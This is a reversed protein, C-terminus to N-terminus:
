LDVAPALRQDEERFVFFYKKALFLSILRAEKESFNGNNGYIELFKLVQKAKELHLDNYFDLFIDYCCGTFGPPLLNKDSLQM